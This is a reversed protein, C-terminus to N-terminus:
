PLGGQTSLQEIASTVLPLGLYIALGVLIVTLLIWTLCCGICDRFLRM